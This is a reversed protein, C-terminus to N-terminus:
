RQDKIRKLLGTYIFVDEGGRVFANFDDDRVIYIKLRNDPIKAARAIPLIIETIQKETETDNILTASNASFMILCSFLIAFIKKM